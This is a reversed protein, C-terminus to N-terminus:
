RQRRPDVALIMCEWTEDRRDISGFPWGPGTWQSLLAPGGYRRIDVHRSVQGSCWALDDGAAYLARATGSWFLTNGHEAVALAHERWDWGPEPCPPRPSPVSVLAARGPRPGRGLRARVATWHAPRLAVDRRMIVLDGLGQENSWYEAHKDRPNRRLPVYVASHPSVAAFRFLAGLRWLDARSATLAGTHQWLLLTQYTDRLAPDPVVVRRLGTGGPLAHVRVRM